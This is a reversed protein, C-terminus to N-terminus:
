AQAVDVTRGVLLSVAEMNPIPLDFSGAADDNRV